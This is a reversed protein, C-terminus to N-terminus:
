ILVFTMLLSQNQLEFHSLIDHKYRNVRLM